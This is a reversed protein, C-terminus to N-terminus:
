LGFQKLIFLFIAGGAALGGLLLWMELFQKKEKEERKLQAVLNEYLRKWYRPDNERSIQLQYDREIERREKAAEAEKRIEAFRARPNPHSMVDNLEREMDDLLNSKEPDIDQLLKSLLKSKEPDNM